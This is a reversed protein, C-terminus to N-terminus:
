ADEELQEVLARMGAQAERLSRQDAESLEALASALTQVREDRWRGFRKRAADTLSLHVARGDDDGAGTELLQAQKLEHVLTSITNPALRLSRAADGVRIGPQLEVLRLLELQATPLAPEGMASRVQRRLLRRAAAWEDLLDRALIDLDLLATKM